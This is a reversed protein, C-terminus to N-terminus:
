QVSNALNELIPVLNTPNPLDEFLAEKSTSTNGQQIADGLMAAFFTRKKTDIQKLKSSFTPLDPLKSSDNIFQKAIAYNDEDSL